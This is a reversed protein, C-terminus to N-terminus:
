GNEVAFDLIGRPDLNGIGKTTSGTNYMLHIHWAVALGAHGITDGPMVTDGVRVKAKEAHGYGIHYGKKFPGVNELVELQIIGDGKSVDGSPAKGWWGGSRVDIVKSRVMSFIPADPPTIVDIGDHVPPHYGWSDALIKAVPRHVNTIHARQYKVRLKRRYDVRAMMRKAQEPTRTHTRIRRRLDPTVGAAMELSASLGVAHCLSACYARSVVGWIGDVKIPCKIDMREFEHKIDEQWNRIDDGRMHPSTVRFTRSAKNIM